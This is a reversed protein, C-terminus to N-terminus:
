AAGQQIRPGLKWNWGKTTTGHRIADAMNGKRTDWRLNDARNNDVSGDGHCGDLRGPRPGEFAELVLFHVYRAHQINEKWLNVMHYRRKGRRSGVLVREPLTLRGGTRHPVVRAISRVRGLSSVEYLGEFGRVPLWREM